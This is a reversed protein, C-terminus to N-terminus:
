TAYGEDSKVSVDTMTECQRQLLLKIILTQSAQLLGPEAKESKIWLAMSKNAIVTWTNKQQGNDSEKTKKKKRRMGREKQMGRASGTNTTPSHLVPIMSSDSLYAKWRLVRCKISISHRLADILCQHLVTNSRLRNNWTKLWILWCFKQWKFTQQTDNTPIHWHKYSLPHTSQYMLTNLPINWESIFISNNNVGRARVPVCIKSINKYRM